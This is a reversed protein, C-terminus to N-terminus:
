INQFLAGLDTGNSIKFGTELTGGTQNQFIVGLNQSTSSTTFKSLFSTTITTGSYYQSLSESLDKGNKGIYNTKTILSLNYGNSDSNPVLKWKYTYTNNLTVTGSTNSINFSGLLVNYLMYFTNVLNSTPDINFNIVLNNVASVGTNSLQGYVTSSNIYIFYNSIGTTGTGGYYLPGFSRGNSDFSTNGQANYLNSITGSNYISYGGDGGAYTSSAGGAGGGAGGGGGGSLNTGAGGNGGGAGGGGGPGGAGSGGGNFADNGTLSLSSGGNGGVVLNQNSSPYAPTSTSGYNTSTNGNVVGFGGSSISSTKSAFGGGGGGLSYQYTTNKRGSDARVYQNTYILGGGNGGAGDSSLIDPNYTYSTGGGGGGGGSGGAGGIYWYIDSQGPIGSGSGGAGGGGSLCGYNYINTITSNTDLYIGHKGSRAPNQPIYIQSNYGNSGGGGLACCSANITITGITNGNTVEILNSDQNAFWAGSVTVTTNTYTSKKIYSM